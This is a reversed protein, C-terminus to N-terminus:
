LESKEKERLSRYANKLLSGLESASKEAIGSVSSLFSSTSDAPSYPPHHNDDQEQRYTPTSQSYKTPIVRLRPRNNIQSALM